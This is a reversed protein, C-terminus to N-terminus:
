KRKKNVGNASKGNAVPGPKTNRNRIKDIQAESYFNVNGIKQVPVLRLQAIIQRVRGESINLDHAILAVAASSRVTIQNRMAYSVIVIRYRNDVVIKLSM